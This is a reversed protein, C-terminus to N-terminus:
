HRWLTMLTDDLSMLTDDFLEYSQEWLTGLGSYNCSHWWLEEFSKTDNLAMQKGVLKYWRTDDSHWLTGRLTM